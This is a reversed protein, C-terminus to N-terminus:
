CNVIIEKKDLEKSLDIKKCISTENEYKLIGCPIKDIKTFEKINTQKPVQLKILSQISQIRLRYVSQLLRNM